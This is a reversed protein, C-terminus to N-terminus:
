NKGSPSWRSFYTTGASVQAKDYAEHWACGGSGCSGTRGVGIDWCGAGVRWARTSGSPITEGAGLRSFGHSMANCRSLTVVNMEIGSNNQIVITGTAENSQILDGGMMSSCGALTLAAVTASFQFVKM